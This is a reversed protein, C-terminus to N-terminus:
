EATHNRILAEIFAAFSESPLHEPAYDEPLGYFVTGNGYPLYPSIAIGDGTLIWVSFPPADSDSSLSTAPRENKILRSLRSLESSTADTLPVSYYIGTAEERFVITAVGNDTRPAVYSHTASERVEALCAMLSANNEYGDTASWLVAPDDHQPKKLGPFLRFALACVLLIAAVASLIPVLESFRKRKPARYSLAEAVFTDDIEGIARYLTNEDLHKKSM